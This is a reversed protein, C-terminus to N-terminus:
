AISRVNKRFYQSNTINGAPSYECVLFYGPTGNRGECAAYGCGLKRSSKWVLQTFHGTQYSFGPHRYSYEKHEGYWARIAASVSPYGAAINEGFSGHSHQFRCQNAYRQAYHALQDDWVLPPAHHNARLENHLVLAEEQTSASANLTMMYFISVIMIKHSRM